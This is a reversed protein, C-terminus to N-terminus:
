PTYVIFMFLGMDVKNIETTRALEKSKITGAGTCAVAMESEGTEPDGPEVTVSLPSPNM